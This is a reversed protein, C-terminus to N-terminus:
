RGTFSLYESLKMRYAMVADSYKDRSQRALTQADLLEPLSSTGAQYYNKNLRLNEASSEVSKEAILIQRYAEELENWKVEIQVMMMERNSQRENEAKKM